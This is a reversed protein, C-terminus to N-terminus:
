QWGKILYYIHDVGPSEDEEDEKRGKNGKKNKEDYGICIINYKKKYCRM